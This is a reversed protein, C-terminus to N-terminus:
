VASSRLLPLFHRYSKITAVHALYTEAFNAMSQAASDTPGDTEDLLEVMYDPTDPIRLVRITFAGHVLPARVHYGHFEQTYSSAFGSATLFLRTQDVQDPLVASSLVVQAHVKPNDVLERLMEM